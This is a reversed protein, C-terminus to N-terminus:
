NHVKYKIKYPIRRVIRRCDSRRNSNRGGISATSRVQVEYQYEYEESIFHDVIDGKTWGTAKTLPNVTHSYHSKSFALRPYFYVEIISGYNLNTLAIQPFNEGMYPHKTTYGGGTNGLTEVGISIGFPRNYSKRIMRTSPNYLTVTFQVDGDGLGQDELATGDYDDSIEIRDFNKNQLPQKTSAIVGGNALKFKM